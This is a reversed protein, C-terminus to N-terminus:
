QKAQSATSTSGTNSTREPLYTFHFFKDFADRFSAACNNYVQVGSLYRNVDQTIVADASWVDHNLAAFDCSAQEYAELSNEFARSTADYQDQCRQDPCQARMTPNSELTPKVADRSEKCLGPEWILAAKDHGKADLVKIKGTFKWAGRYVLYQEGKKAGAVFDYLGQGNSCRELFRAFEQYSSLDSQTIKCPASTGVKFSEGEEVFGDPEFLGQEDLTGFQRIMNSPIRVAM